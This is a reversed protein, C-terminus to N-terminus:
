KPIFLGLGRLIDVLGYRGAAELVPNQQVIPKTQAWKLLDYGRATLDPGLRLLTHGPDTPASPIWICPLVQQKLSM